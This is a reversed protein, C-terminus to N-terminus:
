ATSGPGCNWIKAGAGRDFLDLAPERNVEGVARHQRANDSPSHPMLAITRGESASSM